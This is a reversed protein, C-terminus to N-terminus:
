FSIGVVVPIFNTREPKTAVSYYRAETYLNVGALAIRLGLGGSYGVDTDTRSLDRFEEIAGDIDQSVRRHFVGVGGVLYPRFAGQRPGLTLEASAGVLDVRGTVDDDFDDPLTVGGTSRILPNDMDSRSWFLGGRIALPSGTRVEVFGDLVLGVKAADGYDATPINAGAGLGIGIGSEQAGAGAPLALSTALTALLTLQAPHRM